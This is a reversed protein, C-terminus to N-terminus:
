KAKVSQRVPDRQQRKKKAAVVRECALAMLIPTADLWHNSEDDAAARTERQEDDGWRSFAANRAADAPRGSDLAAAAPTEASRSLAAAAFADGVSSAMAALYVPNVPAIMATALGAQEAFVKIAWEAATRESGRRNETMPPIATADNTAVLSTHDPASAPAAPDAEGEILEMVAVRALEGVIPTENGDSAVQSPAPVGEVSRDAVAGVVEEIPIMGGDASSDAVAVVVTEGTVEDATLVTTPQSPEAPSIVESAAAEALNTDTPPTQGVIIVHNSLLNDAAGDLIADSDSQSVTVAPPDTVPPVTSADNLPGAPADIMNIDVLGGTSNLESTLPNFLTLTAGVQLDIATVTGFHYSFVGGNVRPGAVDAASSYNGLAGDNLVLFDADLGTISDGFSDNSTASGSRQIGVAYVPAADLGSTSSLNDRWQAYLPTLEEATFTGQSMAERLHQYALMDANAPSVTMGPVVVWEVNLTPGGSARFNMPAPPLSEVAPLTGGQSIVAYKDQISDLNWISYDLQNGSLMLRSEM